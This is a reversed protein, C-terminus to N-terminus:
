RPNLGRLNISEVIRQVPLGLLFSATASGTNDGTVTGAWRTTFGNAFRFDGRPTFIQIINFQPRRVEAGFKLLHKGRTWSLSDVAQFTNNRLRMPLFFNDDGITAVGPITVSPVGWVQPGGFQVGPIGIEGVIDRKFANESLRELRLRLYGFKLENVLAPGFIHTESLTLNQARVRAYTGSGPLGIPVFSSENSVSHRGFLLDKDSFRHDIRLSEQNNRQRSSRTDLYNNAAGASTPAPVFGDIIRTAVSNLRIAPIINNPFQTRLLRRGTSDSPDSATTAPDFILTGGAFDGRRQGATPVTVTRSQGEVRRFGEYGAFFFTRNRVVPGGLTAGFQNRRFAPLKGPNNFPRADVADNRLFEYASGHLENRGSKTVVNIQGGSSRGFEASYNHTEMKFEQVTDVSPSVVYANVDPDTNQTGDLLFSNNQSRGGSVSISSNQGPRSFLTSDGSQPGGNGTTVGPVQLTLELFQRGNLPLTLVRRNEIVHGLAPAETNVLPAEGAVEVTQTLNGTELAIDIRAIQDVQLNVGRIVQKRFGQLEAEVTYM